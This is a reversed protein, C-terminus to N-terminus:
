HRSIEYVQDVCPANRFTGERSGALRMGVRELLRSSRVNLPDVTAEVREAETREFVLEIVERVAATAMGRGQAEPRLTFGIEATRGDTALTLGIDGVLALHDPEAIGIQSCVGRQFLEIAGMRALFYNAEADTRTGYWDQYRAVRPDHRYAQFVALDSLQLRRLVAIGADRPLPDRLKMELVGPEHAPRNLAGGWGM